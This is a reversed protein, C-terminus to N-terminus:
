LIAHAYKSAVTTNTVFKESKNLNAIAMSHDANIEIYDGRLLHSLSINKSILSYFPPISKKASNLVVFGLM